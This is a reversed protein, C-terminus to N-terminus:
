KPGTRGWTTLALGLPLIALLLLEPRRTWLAAALVALAAVVALGISFRRVDM